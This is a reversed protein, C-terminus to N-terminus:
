MKKFEYSVGENTVKVLCYIRTDKYDEISIYEIGGFKKIVREHSHGTLVVDCKGSDRLISMIRAREAPDYLQQIKIKVQVFFDSHTLIFVRGQATKLEKELWDIQEKGIFANASDLIFLTVSGGNIRYRTSGIYKKWIPWNGFYIDHNGIVPYCPVPLARIFETVNKVDEEEGSQTIDGLIAVFKADHETIKASIKELDRTDGNEVHTDTLVIFSFEAPFTLNREDDKLYKFNDKEQLRKELDNSGFLGLLDVSLNCGTLLSIISLFLVPSFIKLMSKKVMFVKGRGEM